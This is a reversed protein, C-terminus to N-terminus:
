KSFSWGSSDKSNELPNEISDQLEPFLDIGTLRELSDVSVVFTQLPNKSNENPLLFAIMKGQGRPDYMVKFYFKPISVVNRGIKGKNQKLM